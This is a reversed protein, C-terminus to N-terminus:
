NRRWSGEPFDLLRKLSRHVVLDPISPHALHLPLLEEVWVSIGPTKPSYVAMNLSRLALTQITAELPHGKVRRLLEQLGKPTRLENEKFPVRYAKLLNTLDSSDKDTPPEHIRYL